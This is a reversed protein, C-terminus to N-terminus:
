PRSALGGILTNLHMVFELALEIHAGRTTYYDWHWFGEPTQTDVYWDGMKYTWNSYTEEGTIQYLLSSGWSSKCVHSYDFQRETGSMSFAQYQRALELYEPHPEVLYLRCLFGAAIGGVTWRQRRAAQNEVVFWRQKEQTFETIPAQESRSWNYYFRDPLEKQADYIRKLHRYVARAADLHGTVLCAFGGGCAFPIDMDDSGSGDAHRHNAFAGSVPDRDALLDPMLGFSLDYQKALHAGVILVSNTYAYATGSSRFQGAICGDPSLMNRRLWGCFASATETEGTVTFTWPARYFHFGESPDGISGNDNMQKLLWETGRRRAERYTRLKMQKESTSVASVMIKGEASIRQYV